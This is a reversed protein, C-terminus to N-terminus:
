ASPRDSHIHDRSSAVIHGQASIGSESVDILAYFYIQLAWYVILAILGM